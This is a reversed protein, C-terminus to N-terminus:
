RLMQRYRGRLLFIKIIIPAVKFNLECRLTLPEQKYCM